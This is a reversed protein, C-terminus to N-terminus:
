TRLETIWTYKGDENWHGVLVIGQDSSEYLRAAANGHTGARKCTWGATWWPSGGPAPTLVVTYDYGDCTVDFAIREDTVIANQVPADDVDIWWTM